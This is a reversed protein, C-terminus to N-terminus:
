YFCLPFRATNAMAMAPVNMDGHKLSPVSRTTM